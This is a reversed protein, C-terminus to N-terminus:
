KASCLEVDLVTAMRQKLSQLAEPTIAQQQVEKQTGISCAASATHAQACGSAIGSPWLSRDYRCMALQPILLLPILGRCCEYCDGVAITDTRFLKICCSVLEERM